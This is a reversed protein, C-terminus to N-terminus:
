HVRIEKNDFSRLFVNIAMALVTNVLSNIHFRQWLEFYWSLDQSPLQSNWMFFQVILNALGLIIIFVHLILKPWTLREEQYLSIIYILSPYIFVFALGCAAGSYRCFLFPKLNISMRCKESKCNHYIYSLKFGGWDSTVIFNNKIWKNNVYLM